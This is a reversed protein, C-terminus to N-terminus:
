SGRAVWVGCIAMLRGVCVGAWVVLARCSSAGMAGGDWLGALWCFLAELLWSSLSSSLSSVPSKSSSPLSSRCRGVAFMRGVDRAPAGGRELRWRRRSATRRRWPPQTKRRCGSAGRKRTSERGWGGPASPPLSCSRHLRGGRREAGWDSCPRRWPRSAGSPLLRRRPRADWRRRRRGETM